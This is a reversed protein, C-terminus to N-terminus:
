LSLSAPKRSVLKIGAVWATKTPNKEATKDMQTILTIGTIEKKYIFIAPTTVSTNHCIHNHRTGLGHIEICPWKKLWGVLQHRM